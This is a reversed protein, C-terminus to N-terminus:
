FASSESNSLTIRQNHERQLKHIQHLYDEKFRDRNLKRKMVGTSVFSLLKRQPPSNSKSTLIMGEYQYLYIFLVLFGLKM